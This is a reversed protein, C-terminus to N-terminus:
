VRIALMAFGHKQRLKSRQKPTSWKNYIRTAEVVSTVGPLTRRLGEGRLYGKLTKYKKVSKVTAKHKKGSSTIVCLLTRHLAVVASEATLISREWATTGTATFLLQKDIVKM